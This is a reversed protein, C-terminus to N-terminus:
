AKPTEPDDENLNNLDTVLKMLRKALRAPLEAAKAGLPKNNKDYVSAGLMALTRERTTNGVEQLDLVQGITLEHVTYEEVQETRATM